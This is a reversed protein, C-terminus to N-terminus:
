KALLAVYEKKKEGLRSVNNKIDTCHKVELNFDLKIRYALFILEIRCLQTKFSTRNSYKNSKIAPREM